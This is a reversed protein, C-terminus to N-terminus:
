TARGLAERARRGLRRFRQQERVRARVGRDACRPKRSVIAAAYGAFMGLAAPERLSRYAGRVLLYTPRYGLYYAVDGQARWAAYRSADRGGEARHHFFPLELFTATTWGCLQAKHEDIADWGTREELPLVDPLCSRRYARVAGWVSTGTSFRQKWVGHDREHASGSAIGLRPDAAFAALLREFHDPPLSVDADLKVVVDVELDLAALGSSFSRAVPGGRGMGAAPPIRLSRVWDHLEELERILELTRDSSGDDVILWVDPEVTQAVVSEGLRPLHHEEDHAPTVLAYSLAV